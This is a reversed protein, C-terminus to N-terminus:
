FLTSFTLTFIVKVSVEEELSDTPDVELVELSGGSGGLGGVPTPVGPQFKM